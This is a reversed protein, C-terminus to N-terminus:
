FSVINDDTDGNDPLVIQNDGYNTGLLETVKLRYEPLPSIKENNITIYTADSKAVTDYSIGVSKLNSKIGNLKRSLVNPYAPFGKTKTSIGKSPALSVIENLLESMTGKWKSKDKMFSVMLSAVIDSNLVEINQCDCNIRYEKIFEDGLGGLAQGIVYGWHAFDAMRPLNDLKLSPYLAMAKSLVDFIGGLIYPLDKEFNQQIESLERRDKEPIRSLEVLIARDLLDSRTAVNNIGNLALCRKFTFIYDDADSYLKRQQIGGGTIARCLTDSTEDSIRSVNDFPLFWHQQLNVAMSRSDSQLTLTELASPDILRKLLTCTTSKAAGKEGYFIPMAHPIDPVFCSILWCLFLTKDQKINIYKLIKKVDGNEAPEVQPKQHRYQIFMTPPDNDINWGEETIEVAQWKSNSLSYWFANEHKAVRNSLPIAEENDFLAQASLVSLAQNISDKRAPKGKYCYFLKNLWISFDKSEIGWVEKHNDQVITAYLNNATDHFLVTGNEEVLRLITEAETEHEPDAISKTSSDTAEPLLDIEDISHGANLWDYIDGKPPLNPITVIKSNLINNYVRKAYAKGPEDNDPIIIVEKDTFYKDYQSLWRSNAGNDLTTAVRGKAIIAEACKEGEVFYITSADKFSALNYLVRQVGKVGKTGNPQKFYFSKTGDSYDLRTKTYVLNGEEDTYRYQRESNISPKAKQNGSDVYLDSKQLGLSKLIESESCGAFCKLIIRKSDKSLMISLSPNTDDHSPCRAIYKNDGTEKVNKFLKLLKNITM